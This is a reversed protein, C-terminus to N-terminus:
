SGGLRFIPQTSGELFPRRRAVYARWEHLAGSPPDWPCPRLDEVIPMGARWRPHALLDDVADVFDRFTALPGRVSIYAVGVMEDIWHM